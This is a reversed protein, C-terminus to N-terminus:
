YVILKIISVNDEHLDILINVLYSYSSSVEKLMSLFCLSFLEGQRTHRLVPRHVLLDGTGKGTLACAQTAPWTGLQSRAPPLWNIYRECM